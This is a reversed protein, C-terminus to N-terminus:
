EIKNIWNKLSCFHVNLTKEILNDITSCICIPILSSYDKRNYVIVVLGVDTLIMVSGNLNHFKIMWSVMISISDSSFKCPLVYMFQIFIMAHINVDNWAAHYCGCWIWSDMLKHNHEIQWRNESSSMLDNEEKM